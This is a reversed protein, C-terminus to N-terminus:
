SLAKEYDYLRICGNVLKKIIKADVSVNRMKEYYTIAQDPIGLM